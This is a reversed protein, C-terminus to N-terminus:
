MSYVGNQTSENVNAGNSILEEIMLEKGLMAALDLATKGMENRRNMFDPNEVMIQSIDSAILRLDDVEGTTAIGIIDAAM